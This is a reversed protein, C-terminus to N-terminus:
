LGPPTLRDVYRQYRPHFTPYRFLERRTILYYAQTCYFVTFILFFLPDISRNVLVHTLLVLLESVFVVVLTLLWGLHQHKALTIGAPIAIFSLLLSIISLIDVSKDGLFGIIGLVGAMITLFSIVPILIEDFLPPSANKMAM